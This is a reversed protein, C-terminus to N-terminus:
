DKETEKRPTASLQQYASLQYKLFFNRWESQGKQGTVQFKKLSVQSRVWKEPDM